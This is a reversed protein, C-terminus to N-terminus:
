TSGGPDFRQRGALLSALRLGAAKGPAVARLRGRSVEKEKTLVQEVTAQRQAQTPLLIIPVARRIFRASASLLLASRLRTVFPKPLRRYAIRPQRPALYVM